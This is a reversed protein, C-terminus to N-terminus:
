KVVEKSSLAKVLRYLFEQGEYFSTVPMREDRGHARVDDIDTFIGDVGYVPIGAVRLYLSDSAGTSMVPVVPVGPWLAQTIREIPGLVAPTLPSPPSPRAAAVPTVTTKDDALAAVVAERVKDPSDDPLMRCNVTARALQPLANEAHGAELLTPVCTTRLLANYYPRQSLRDVAAADPPEALVARMDAAEQGSLRAATRTFFARTVENLRVPFRYHSLRVLDEALRYIANDPVPLSSHGGPNRVELRFSQFVKESAQVTNAIAHGDKLYGGGGENLGYEADILDRHEKVLFGAGNWDGGEEDSTLALILDRDPRFGEQKFRILNAVFIAAMAKDDSTGRGYFYGGEERLVFPDFSWDERRAEVVDLHALLLLPRRAGTGRLRAVLNGKKPHPVLVQVDAAPLGAAQLRAAMAEAAATNDGSSDTTNIEILQQYLERVLRREPSLAQAHAAAAPVVALAAAGAALALPLPRKM